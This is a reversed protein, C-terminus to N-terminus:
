QMISQNAVNLQFIDCSIRAKKLIICLYFTCGVDSHMSM